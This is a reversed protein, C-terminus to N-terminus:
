VSGAPPQGPEQALQAQRQQEEIQAAVQLLFASLGNIDAAMGSVAARAGTTTQRLRDAAPGAFTMADVERALRDATAHMQDAHVRLENAM